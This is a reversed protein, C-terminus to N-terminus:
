IGTPFTEAVERGTPWRVPPDLPEVAHTRDFHFLADFQPVVHAHFYHSRRETEPRYIVGIARELRREALHDAVARDSVLDLFFRPIATEHFLREVSGELSPRVEKHEPPRDWASAATVTGAHTTFGVLLTDDEGHRQRVLQGVNLEGQEGMETARADGLHSNHAWVVVKAPSGQRRTLHACLADLTDAMHTDRLNWSSVDSAFMSRYYREANLVLRANQEAFFFEDAAIADTEGGGDHRAYESARQRLERLQRVVDDECSQSLSFSAAYGYHQPDEGFHEFCSYRYRARQAADPDVRDLSELVAAMSGHLSYLDIGYFGVHAREDRTRANHARMWTVLDRVTTNRWMWTPFRRFGILAQDADGDDDRGRVWRNVRWADPWDAEVAVATFGKEEVLRRTIRARAAYFEQTGHSAEGLLVLSRDGVLDLLPDLDHSGGTLPLAHATLLSM